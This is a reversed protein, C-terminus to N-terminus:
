RSDGTANKFQAPPADDEVGVEGLDVAHRGFAEVLGDLPVLISEGLVKDELKFAL